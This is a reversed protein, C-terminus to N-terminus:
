KGHEKFLSSNSSVFFPAQFWEIVKAVFIRSLTGSITHKWTKAHSLIPSIMVLFYEPQNTSASLWHLYVTFHLIYVVDTPVLTVSSPWGVKLPKLFTKSQM